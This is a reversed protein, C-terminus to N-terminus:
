RRIDPSLPRLLMKLAAFTTVAAVCLLGIRLYNGWAWEQAIRRLEAAPPDLPAVFLIDNRPYHFTFTIVDTAIAACLAVLLLWRIRPPKARWSILVSVFLFLQVAPSVKRFFSGPTATVLFGRAHELSALSFIYNPAMVISEYIAAGLLLCVAAAAVMVILERPLQMCYGAM